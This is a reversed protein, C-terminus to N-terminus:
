LLQQFRIGITSCSWLYIESGRFRRSLCESAIPRQGCIGHNPPSSFIHRSTLHSERGGELWILNVWFAICVLNEGMTEFLGIDLAKGVWIICRRLGVRMLACACGAEGEGV